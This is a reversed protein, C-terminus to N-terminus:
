PQVKDVTVIKIQLLRNIADITPQDWGCELSTKPNNKLYEDIVGKAAIKNAAKLTIIMEADKLASTELKTIKTNRATVIEDNAKVMANIRTQQADFARNYGATDGATHGSSYAYTFVGFIIAAFALLLGVSLILKAKLSTFM